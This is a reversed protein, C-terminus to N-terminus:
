VYNNFKIFFFSFVTRKSFINKKSDKQTQNFFITKLIELYCIKSDIVVIKRKCRLFHMDFIYTLTM